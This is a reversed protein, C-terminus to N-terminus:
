VHIECVDPPQLHASVKNRRLVDSSFGSNELETRFQQWLEEEDESGAPDRRHFLKAAIADVKDKISDLQRDDASELVGRSKVPNHLQITDLFLDINTKQNALKTRILAVMDKERSGMNSNSRSEDTGQVEADRGDATEGVNGYKQLITDLQKLTFDSDEVIPTLQRAYQNNEGDGHPGASNLLSDPDEAEARLHKLVTHLARVATAVDTFDPGATRAGHYLQRALADVPEISAATTTASGNQATM